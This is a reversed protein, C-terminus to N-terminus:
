ASLSPFADPTLASVSLAHIGNQMLDGLADHVLRYRAVRPLGNFAPSVITLRFHGGERAGAHGQHQSSDDVIELFVPALTALRERMRAPVDDWASM